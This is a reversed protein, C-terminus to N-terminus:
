SERLFLHRQLLYLAFVDYAAHSVMPLLLNGTAEYLYGFYLGIATAMVFYAPTLAHLLGFVIAAGTVGLFSQLLGRFFLEEAFGAVASLLVIDFATLSQISFGLVQKLRGTINAMSSKVLAIKSIPGITTSLVLLAPPIALLLGLLLNEATLRFGYPFFSGQVFRAISLSLVVLALETVYLSGLFRSRTLPAVYAEKRQDGM